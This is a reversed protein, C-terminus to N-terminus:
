RAARSPVVCLLLKAFVRLLFTSVAAKIFLASTASLRFPINKLDHLAYTITRNARIAGQAPYRGQPIGARTAATRDCGTQRVLMRASAISFQVTPHLICAHLIGEASTHLSRHSLGVAESLTDVLQKVECTQHEVM